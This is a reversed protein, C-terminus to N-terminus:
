SPNVAYADRQTVTVIVPYERFEKGARLQYDPEDAAQSEATADYVVGGLTKDNDIANMFDDVLGMLTTEATAESGDVRYAFMVFFRTLRQMIGNTKRQSQHSGLTVFSSVRTTMSEPAGIQVNGMGNLGELVTVLASAVAGSNYAM